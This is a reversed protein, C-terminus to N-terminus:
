KQLFLIHNKDKISIRNNLKHYWMIAENFYVEFPDRHAIAYILNDNTLVQYFLLIDKKFSFDIESVRFSGDLISDKTELFTEITFPSTKLLDIESIREPEVIFSVSKLIADIYEQAFKGKVSVLAESDEM